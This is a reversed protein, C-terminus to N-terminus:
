ETAKQSELQRQVRKPASQGRKSHHTFKTDLPETYQGYELASRDEGSIWEFMLHQFITSLDICQEDKLNLIIQANQLTQQWHKTHM